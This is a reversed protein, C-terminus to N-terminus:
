WRVVLPLDPRFDTSLGNGDGDFELELLHAPGAKLAILRMAAMSRNVASHTVTPGTIGVTTIDRFGLEHGVLRSAAKARPVYVWMPDDVSTGAAVYFAQDAPLYPPRYEWASFPPVAAEGRVVIGFPCAGTRRKSWREWLLTSRAVGARAEDEDTVWLLELMTSRFFFRRNATGQGPHTNAPGEALGFEILRQAEPAGPDTCLFVHDVALDPPPPIL